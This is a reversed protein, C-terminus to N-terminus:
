ENHVCGKQKYFKDGLKKTVIKVVIGSLIWQENRFDEEEDTDSDDNTAVDDVSADEGNIENGRSLAKSKEKAILSELKALQVRLDDTNSVNDGSM